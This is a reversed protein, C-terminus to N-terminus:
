PCDLQDFRGVPAHDARVHDAVTDPLQDALGLQDVVQPEQGFLDCRESM